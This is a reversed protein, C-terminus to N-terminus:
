QRKGHHKMIQRITKGLKKDKSKREALSATNFIEEAKLKRWRALRADDIDGEKVAALVACGPETEHQCDRFRCQEGLAHLDAFVEEIGSSVDTLQVERMGPTDLVVCGNPIAYLQRRTTTHRGKADSERIAGTEIERSKTLANTLTSKGVGSSGLFAVTKGPKCWVSLMEGPAAGRADLTLIPVLESLSRAREVYDEPSTVLDSKTLLVVPAINAEITLAIYRELRAVNFDQNCSSVIFATDINAAILQISRDTGPARRKLLSKRDLVVSSPPHSRDLLLWDGVASNPLPPIHEDIADGIVHLANRHVEVVRVPPTQTLADVSIQQSFYPQWGYRELTSLKREAPAHGAKSPFFGSYDRTMPDVKM